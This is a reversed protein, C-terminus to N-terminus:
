RHSWGKACCKGHRNRYRALPRRGRLRDPEFVTGSEPLCERCVRRSPWIAFFQREKSVIVCGWGHVAVGPLSVELQAYGERVLWWPPSNKQVEPASLCACIHFFFCGSLRKCSRGPGKDKRRASAPRWEVLLSEYGVLAVKQTQVEACRALAAVRLGPARVPRCVPGKPVIRQCKVGSM